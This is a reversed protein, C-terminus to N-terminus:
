ARERVKEAFGRLAQCTRCDCGTHEADAIFSGLLDSFTKCRAELDERPETKYIPREAM